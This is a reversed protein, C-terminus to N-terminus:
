ISYLVFLFALSNVFSVFVFGYRFVCMLVCLSSHQKIESCFTFRYNNFTTEKIGYAMSRSELYVARELLKAYLMKKWPFFDESSSSFLSM